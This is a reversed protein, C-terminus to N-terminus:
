RAPVEAIKKVYEDFQGRYYLRILDAELRALKAEQARGRVIRFAKEKIWYASDARQGVGAANALQDLELTTLGRRWLARYVLLAERWAANAAQTYADRLGAWGLSPTDILAAVDPHPEKDTRYDLLSVKLDVKRDGDYDFEVTDFFGNDDTDAYRVVEEVKAADDKRTPERWGGHYRADKDVTWAGTEAGHLHLKRDFVGVYLKGKGSDDDDFDGRDGLSDAQPHGGLGAKQTSQSRAEGSPGQNWRKTSYPDAPSEPANADLNYNEEVKYYMEVREWRHDDDDEDFVLWRQTWGGKDWFHDWGKDRPMFSVSDLRRWRNEAFCGDFRAQGTFGPLPYKFDRYPIGPGKVRFSLDFDVENDKAGDNDLDFALFAENLKGTLRTVGDPGAKPPDLWRMAMESVGDGDPDYFSFPNEWSLTLDEIDRPETHMKLFDSDGNYDPLWATRGTFGWCNFDFAQWDEWGLVGDKDTDLFIMWQGGSRRGSRGERGNLAFAQVDARGDGDTDAWKINQDQPGDYFGDGDMDIQMVDGVIDGRTDTPKLDGNEDLWRVRRGNWWRELIDPKKDGDVDLRLLEPSPGATTLATRRWDRVAATGPKAPAEVKTLVVARPRLAEDGKIDIPTLVVDLKGAELTVRGIPLPDLYTPTVAGHLAQTGIKVVFRSGVAKRYFDHAVTVAYAGAQPLDLTWRVQDDLHSLGRVHPQQSPGTGLVVTKGHLQADAVKLTHSTAATAAAAAAPAPAAAAAPATDAAQVLGALSLFAATWAGGHPRTM